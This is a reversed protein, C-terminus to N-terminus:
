ELRRVTKMWRVGEVHMRYGGLRSPVIRAAYQTEPKLRRHEPAPATERWVQGDEMRFTGLGQSDYSASVIRVILPEVSDDRLQRTALVQEAGLGKPAGSESVSAPPEADRDRLAAELCAIHAGTNGAHAVRCADIPNAIALTPIAGVILMFTIFIRMPSSLLTM